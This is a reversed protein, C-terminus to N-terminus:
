NRNTSGLANLLDDIGSEFSHRFDAYKKTKLLVPIRCNEILAPIVRVKGDKLEDWYKTQWESEVWKSKVAHSSLLVVVATARQLGKSIESPINQGADIEWEDLWPNHGHQALEVAIRKAYAKNISSHSIFVKQKKNATRRLTAVMRDGLVEAILLAEALIDSAMADTQKNSSFELNALQFFIQDYRTLLHNTSASTLNKHSISAYSRAFILGGFQVIALDNSDEDDYIGIRGRHKGATVAVLGYEKKNIAM